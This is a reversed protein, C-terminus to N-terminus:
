KKSAGTVTRAIFVLRFGTTIYECVRQNICDTHLSIRLRLLTSCIAERCGADCSCPGFAQVLLTSAFYVCLFTFEQGNCPDGSIVPCESNGDGYESGRWVHANTNESSISSVGLMRSLPQACSGVPSVWLALLGSKGRSELCVDLEPSRLAFYLLM